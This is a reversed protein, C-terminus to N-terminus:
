ATMMGKTPGTVKPTTDEMSLSLMEGGHHMQADELDLVLRM